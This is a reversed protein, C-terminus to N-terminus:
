KLTLTLTMKQFVRSEMLCHLGNIVAVFATEARQSEGMQPAVLHRVAQFSQGTGSAIVAGIIGFKQCSMVPQFM